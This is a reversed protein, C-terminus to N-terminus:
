IAVLFATKQHVRCTYVRLECSSSSQLVVRYAEGDLKQVKREDRGSVLAPDQSSTKNGRSSVNELREGGTETDADRSLTYVADRM